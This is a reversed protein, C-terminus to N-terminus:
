GGVSAEEEEAHLYAPLQVRIRARLRSMLSYLGFYARNVYLSHPSGRASSIRKLRPDTSTREGFARIEELYGPDGFDFSGTRFPRSLIAISERYIRRLLERDGAADGPLLLALDSLCHEFRDEDELRRADLLRFYRRYFDEPIAKVCGFDLVWLKGDRVLFNGPHPDAHFLRLGHVQFHYFDWLTQGIRDRLGADTERDAFRDLPEGDIWDMTLIRRTSWEPHFTPFRTNSLEKCAAALGQARERELCYDTEELLRERVEGLFYDLEAATLDFLKMAVPRILRLDSALSEAVGPYQVKVALTRGDKEARHIQGISAGCVARRSFHDFVDDPRRGLEREFTRVVLPYSLPPASYHAQSFAKAYVDPLLTQDISLMQAVKLPAGKMRSLTAYADAATRRHFTERGDQGTLARRMRYNLYNGGIRAGAGALSFARALKGKPISHQEKM